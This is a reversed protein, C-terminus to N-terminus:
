CWAYSKHKHPTPQLLKFSLCQRYFAHRVPFTQDGVASAIYKSILNLPEGMKIVWPRSEKRLITRFFAALFRLTYSFRRSLTDMSFDKSTLILSTKKTQRDRERDTQRHTHRDTQTQTIGHDEGKTIFWLIAHKTSLREAFLFTSVSPASFSFFM